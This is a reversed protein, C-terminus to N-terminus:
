AQMRARELIDEDPISIAVFGRNQKESMRAFISSPGLVFVYLIGLWLKSMTDGLVVSFRLWAELWRRRKVRGVAARVEKGQGGSVYRDLEARSYSIHFREDDAIEAFMTCSDADDKMLDSYVDFQQAGRKEAIWVFALFEVEGLKSFLSDSENIGHEQIFSSDDLMAQARGKPKSALALARKRFLGAHKLEDLAHRFYKARMDRRPTEEVAMLMDLGSGAETHSFGAMKISDRGPIRWVVNSIVWLVWDRRELIM